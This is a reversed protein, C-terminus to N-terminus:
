RDQGNCRYRQGLLVLRSARRTWDRRPERRLSCCGALLDRDCLRSCIPPHAAVLSQWCLSLPVATARLFARGSGDDAAPHGAHGPYGVDRGHSRGVRPGGVVPPARPRSDTAGGAVSRADWPPPARMRVARPGPVEPLVPSRAMQYGLRSLLSAFVIAAFANMSSGQDVGRKNKGRCASPSLAFRSQRAREREGEGKPSSWHTGLGDQGSGILRRM